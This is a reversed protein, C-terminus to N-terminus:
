LSIASGPGRKRVAVRRVAHAPPGRAGASVRNTTVLGSIGGQEVTRRRVAETEREKKLKSPSFPSPTTNELGRGSPRTETEM